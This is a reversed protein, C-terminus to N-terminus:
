AVAAASVYALLGLGVLFSGFATVGFLWTCLRVFRLTGAGFISASQEQLAKEWQWGQLYGQCIM